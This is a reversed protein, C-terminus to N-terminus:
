WFSSNESKHFYWGSHNSFSSHGGQGVFGMKKLREGAVGYGGLYNALEMWEEDSPIHWGKPAIKLIVDWTYLLGIKSKKIIKPSYSSPPFYYSGNTRPDHKPVTRIRTNDRYRTVKLNEAMWIQNGIKVTKYRNGEIDKCTVQDIRKIIEQNFKDSGLAAISYENYAKLLKGQALYNDGNDLRTKVKLKKEAIKIKKLIDPKSKDHSSKFLLAREYKEIANSWKGNSYLEDGLKKNKEFENNEIAFAMKLGVTANENPKLKLAKEYEGIASVWLKNKYYGDGHEEYIKFRRNMSNESEVARLLIKWGELPLSELLPEWYVSLSNSPSIDILDGALISPQIIDGDKYEANVHIDFSILASSDNGMLDFYTIIRNNEIRQEINIITQSHSIGVTISLILFRNIILLLKTLIM